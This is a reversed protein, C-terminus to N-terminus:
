RAMATWPMLLRGAVLLGRDILVALLMTAGIGALVEELIGRQFGDTFLLGLNPVGLLGSVTVLSITSVSMVRLGALLVPGALPLDVAWFRTWTSYGVATAAVQVDPNVADLADAASRLMLAIGYITLAVVVNLASRVGAGTILPLVVFLPLSPIAYLLSAVGLAVGRSWRYRNALWAVPVAFLFAAAIAPLALGLHDVSRSWILDLNALVWTM